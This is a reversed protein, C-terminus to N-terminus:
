KKTFVENVKGRTDDEGSKDNEL